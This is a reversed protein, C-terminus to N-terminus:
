VSVTQKVLYNPKRLAQSPRMRCCCFMLKCPSPSANFLAGLCESDSVEAVLEALAIFGMGIWCSNRIGYNQTLRTTIMEAEGRNVFRLMTACIRFLTSVRANWKTQTRASRTWKRKAAPFGQRREAEPRRDQHRAKC